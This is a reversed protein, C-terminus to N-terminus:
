GPLETVSVCCDRDGRRSDDDRVRDIKFNGSYDFTEADDPRELLEQRRMEFGAGDHRDEVFPHRGKWPRKEVIGAAAVHRRRKSGEDVKELGLM